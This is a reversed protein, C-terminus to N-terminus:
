FCFVFIFESTIIAKREKNRMDDAHSTNKQAQLAMIIIANCFYKQTSQQGQKINSMFLLLFTSM